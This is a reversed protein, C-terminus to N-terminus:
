TFGDTKESEELAITQLFSAVSHVRVGEIDMARILDEDRKIDDDRSVLCSARGVMATELVANDRLDRCLHIAGSPTVMESREIVLAVYGAVERAELQYKNVLRPRSLVGIMEDVIPQSLISVFRGRRFADLILAPHGKPNLLASVWVNTDVVARLM